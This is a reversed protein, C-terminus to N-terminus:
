AEDIMTDIAVLYPMVAREGFKRIGEQGQRTQRFEEWSLSPSTDPSSSKVGGDSVIKAGM